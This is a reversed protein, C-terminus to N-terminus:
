AADISSAALISNFGRVRQVYHETVGNITRTKQHRLQHSRRTPKRRDYNDLIYTAPPKSVNPAKSYKRAQSSPSNRQTPPTEAHEAAIEEAYSTEELEAFHPQHQHIGLHFKLLTRTTSPTLSPTPTCATASSKSPPPAPGGASNKDFIPNRTFGFMSYKKFSKKIATNM